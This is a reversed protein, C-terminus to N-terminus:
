FSTIVYVLPLPIVIQMLNCGNLVGVTEVEIFIVKGQCNGQPSVFHRPMEWFSNWSSVSEDHIARKFTGEPGKRTLSRRSRPRVDDDNSRSM